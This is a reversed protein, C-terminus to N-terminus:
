RLLYGRFQSFPLQPADTPGAQSSVMDVRNDCAAPVRPDNSARMQHRAGPQDRHHGDRHPGAQAVQEGPVGPGRAPRPAFRVQGASKSKPGFNYARGGSKDTNSRTM